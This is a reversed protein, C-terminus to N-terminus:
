FTVTQNKSKKPKEDCCKKNTKVNESDIRGIRGGINTGRVKGAGLYRITGSGAISYDMSELECRTEASGSGAVSIKASKVKGSEIFMDGSGAISLNAHDAHLNKCELKGSGAIQMEFLKINATEKFIVSGSGATQIKLKQVEYPTVFCFDVSGVLSIEEITPASIEIIFKTPTLNTHQVKEAVYGLILEDGKTRIDVWEFLNEDLTVRCSYNDAVKYNVTAPLIMSIEKFAAVDIDRTVINGNGEAVNNQKYVTIIKNGKGDIVTDTKWVKNNQAEACLVAMVVLLATLFSKKAM